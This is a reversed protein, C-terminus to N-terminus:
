CLIIILRSEKIKKQSKSFRLYSKRFETLEIPRLLFDNVSQKIVKYALNIDDSIVVIYPLNEIFNSLEYLFDTTIFSDTNIFVLDPRKELIINLAEIESEVKGVCFLDEFLSITNLIEKSFKNGSLLIFSYLM